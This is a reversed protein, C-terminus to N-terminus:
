PAEEQITIQSIYANLGLSALISYIKNTLKTILTEDLPYLDYFFHSELGWGTSFDSTVWVEDTLKFSRLYDFLVSSLNDSDIRKLIEPSFYVGVNITQTSCDTKDETNEHDESDEDYFSVPVFELKMLRAAVVRHTGNLVVLDEAASEGVTIHERYPLGAQIDKMLNLVIDNDPKTNLLYSTTIDWNRGEPYLPAYTACLEEVSM